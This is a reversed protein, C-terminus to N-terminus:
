HYPSWRSRCEKGVRREESRCLPLMPIVCRPFYVSTSREQADTDIADDPRVYHSVNAITVILRYNRGVKEAFVADDFDRATEGDITVLPLDRLDVRGKLDSKRVHDLIKKAAKACAESFQHPLHHKRVAIEIEM